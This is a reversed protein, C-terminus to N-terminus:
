EGCADNDGGIEQVGGGGELLKQFSRFRGLRRASVDDFEDRTRIVDAVVFAEEVQQLIGLYSSVCILRGEVWVHWTYVM